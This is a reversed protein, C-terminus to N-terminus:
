FQTLGKMLTENGTVKGQEHLWKDVSRLIFTLVITGQTEPLGSIQKTAFVVIFSVAAILGLRLAEKIAAQVPETFVKNFLSRM